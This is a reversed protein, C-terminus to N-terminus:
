RVGGITSVTVEITIADVVSVLPFVVGSGVEYIAVAIPDAIVIFDVKEAGGSKRVVNSGESEYGRDRAISVGGGEAFPIVKCAFRPLIAATSTDGVGDGHWRTADVGELERNAGDDVARFVLLVVEVELEITFMEGVFGDGDEGIASGCKGHKGWPQLRSFGVVEFEENIVGVVVAADGDIRQLNECRAARVRVFVVNGIPGFDADIISVSEISWARDVALGAGGDDYAFGFM